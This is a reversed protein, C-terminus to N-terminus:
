DHSCSSRWEEAMLSGCALLASLTGSLAGHVGILQLYGGGWSFRLFNFFLFVSQPKRCRHSHLFSLCHLCRSHSLLFRAFVDAQDHLLVGSTAATLLCDLGAAGACMSIGGDQLHRHMKGGRAGGCSLEM